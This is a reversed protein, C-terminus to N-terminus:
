YRLLLAASVANETYRSGIQNSDNQLRRYSLTGSLRPEFQRTLGFRIYRLDDERGLSAFENRTYGVRVNSTTHPTVRLTWLVSTGSQRTNSTQAFDGAGPQGPATAERRQTFVNALVTNRVGHIGFSAQWMRQLFPTTTVFNVPVTLSQPLGNQAIFSEVATQREAPDPITSLFLTDLFDVTNATEPVLVQGHVTTIDENYRLRWTTLRTRHNFDLSQTSGFYRRGTTASLHTRPTPKWDPGVSWFAGKPQDGLTLYDNNEYGINAQVGLQPTLLRTGGFSIKELDTSQQNRTYAIHDKNYAVNWTLVKFSPGSWLRMGIRNAESSFLSNSYSVESRTFRAEGHADPGFDRRLYPSVSYSRVSTRNGTVNVDSDAQSGLLSFDQRSANASADVFLLQEVLEANGRASLYHYLDRSGEGARYVVEPAYSASFRARAGSRRVFLSPRVRTVWDSQESGEPTLRLNDTYTEQISLAPRIDWGPRGVGPIRPAVEDSPRPVLGRGGQGGSISEPGTYQAWTPPALLLALLAASLWVVRTPHSSAGSGANAPRRRLLKKREIAAADAIAMAM